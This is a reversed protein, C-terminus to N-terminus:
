ELLDSVLKETVEKYIDRNTGPKVLSYRMQNIFEYAGALEEELRTLRQDNEYRIFNINHYLEEIYQAQVAVTEELIRHNEALQHINLNTPKVPNHNKLLLWYENSDSYPYFKWSEGKEFVAEYMEDTKDHYYYGDFHVFASMSHDEFGPAPNIVPVFDVREVIAIHKYKFVQKIFDETVNNNLRPIYVSLNYLESSM